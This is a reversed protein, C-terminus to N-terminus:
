RVWAQNWLFYFEGSFIFNGVRKSVFDLQKPNYMVAVPALDVV